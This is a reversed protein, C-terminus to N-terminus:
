GRRLVRAATGGSAVGTVAVLGVALLKWGSGAPGEHELAVPSAEGDPTTIEGDPTPPAAPATTATESPSASAHPTATPVSPVSPASTPPDTAPASPTATPDPSTPAAPTTPAPATPSSATVLGATAAQLDLLGYGTGDDRGPAALDRATDRLRAVAEEHSLGAARVLALAGSVHPAAFSTGSAIGYTREDSACPDDGDRQCWTSVIDVGPAMLLDDRGTDSFEARRDDRDTAGVLV